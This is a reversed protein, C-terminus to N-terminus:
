SRPTKPKKNIQAASRPYAPATKSKKEIVLLTMERGLLDPKFDVVERLEGGFRNVCSEAISEEEDAQKRSRQALLLGGMDLLPLCLEAVVPLAGVARATAFDYSEREGKRHALVEARECVVKLRPQLGLEVAVLELFRCKKGISDLLVVNLQPNAIALVMGPFGAGSGVDILRSEPFGSIFPLLKLADLLHEKLLIPLESKAVLNTHENYDQLLRCYHLLNDDRESGLGYSALETLAEPEDILDKWSAGCSM